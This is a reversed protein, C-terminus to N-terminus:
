ADRRTTYDYNLNGEALLSGVWHSYLRICNVFHHHARWAKLNTWAILSMM